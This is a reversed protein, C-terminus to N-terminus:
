DPLFSSFVTNGYQMGLSTLRIGTATVELLKKQSFTEIIEKYKIFFDMHFYDYFAQWACGETTRLALFMFEAMATERDLKEAFGVPLVANQGQLANIYKKIDATNATRRGDFFSHAAAGLGLYPQYHWYKLNHCCKADQVAYNSIEYRQYGQEPLFRTVFEYMAAEEEESPLQLLGQSELRAFPTAEEIQLGYVSMHRVGLEIAKQISDMIDTIHQAPLGYMLDININSIGAERANMIAEVAEAGSHIRGIQRLIDGSFSQVGFSIRNVGAAKLVALKERNVTGPNAEITIETQNTFLFHAQLCGLISALQGASLVTPTGGGIFVTDLVAEPMNKQRIAIERCLANVYDAYVAESVVSSPFDCYFCKKRCFPIHIYLGLNM